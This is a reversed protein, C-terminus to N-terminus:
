GCYFTASDLDNNLSDGASPYLYAIGQLEVDRTGLFDQGEEIMFGYRLDTINIGYQINDNDFYVISTGPIFFKNPNSVLGFNHSKVIRSSFENFIALHQMMTSSDHVSVPNQIIEVPAPDEYDELRGSYLTNSVHLIPTQSTFTNSYVQQNRNYKWGTPIYAAGEGRGFPVDRTANITKKGNSAAYGDDHWWLVTNNESSGIEQLVLWYKSNPVIPRKFDVKRRGIPLPTAPIDRLPYTLEAVVDLGIRDNIDNVIFGRLNTNEPNDSDTGANVKSLVLTLEYLETSRLEIQQAIDQNFLPTYNNTSSNNAVISSTDAQGIVVEAYVSPDTSSGMSVEERVYSTLDPNDAYHTQMKLVHGTSKFVPLRSFVDNTHDVGLLLGGMEAYQNLLSDVSGSFKTSPITLPITRDIGNLTFNGREQLSKGNKNIMIDPNTFVDYILNNIYYKKDSNKLNLENEKMNLFPVNREYEIFTHGWIHKMSQGTLEWVTAGSPGYDRRNIDIILGNILDQYETQWPKKAKINVRNRYGIDGNKIYGADDYCKITFTGTKRIGNEITIEVPSLGTDNEREGDHTLITRSSSRNKFTIVPILSDNYEEQETLGVQNSM